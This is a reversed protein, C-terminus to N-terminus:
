NPGNFARELLDEELYRVFRKMTLPKLLSLLGYLETRRSSKPVSKNLLTGVTMPTIILSDSTWEVVEYNPVSDPFEGDEGLLNLCCEIMDEVYEDTGKGKSFYQVIFESLPIEINM